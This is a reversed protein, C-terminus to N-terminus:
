SKVVLVGHAVLSITSRMSDDYIEGADEAYHKAEDEDLFEWKGEGAIIVKKGSIDIPVFFGYDKFTVRVTKGSENKLTMWCGKMQCVEEITGEVKFSKSTTDVERLFANLEIVNQPSIKEGYADYSEKNSASCGFFVLILVLYRM